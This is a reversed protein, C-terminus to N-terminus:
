LKGLFITKILLIFTLIKKVCKSETKQQENTLVNSIWTGCRLSLNLHKNLIAWVSKISKRVKNAIESKTLRRDKEIISKGKAVHKQDTATKVTGPYPGKDLSSDGSEFQKKWDRITRPRPTDNRVVKKLEHYILHSSLSKSFHLKAQARLDARSFNM